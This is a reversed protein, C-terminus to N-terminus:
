QEQEAAGYSLQRPHLRRLQFKSIVKWEDATTTQKMADILLIIESQAEARQRNFDTLLADFDARTADYDANLATIESRHEGIRRAYGAMLRDREELLQLLQEARAPDAVTSRVLDTEQQRAEAIQARLAAPDPAETRKVCGSLLLCAFLLLSASITASLREAM